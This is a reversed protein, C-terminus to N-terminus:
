DRKHRREQRRAYSDLGILTFAFLAAGLTIVIYATMADGKKGLRSGSGDPRVLINVGGLQCRPPEV